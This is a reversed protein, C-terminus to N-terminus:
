CAIHKIKKATKRYKKIENFDIQSEIPGKGLNYIIELWLIESDKAPFSRTVIMMQAEKKIFLSTEIKETYKRSDNRECEKVFGLKIFFDIILKSYATRTGYKSPLADFLIVFYEEEPFENGYGNDYLSFELPIKRM